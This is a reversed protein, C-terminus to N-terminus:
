IQAFLNSIQDRSWLCVYRPFETGKKYDPIRRVPRPLSFPPRELDLFRFGGLSVNLNSHLLYAKHSTILAYPIKSNSFNKLASLVDETPLHFLCDRCHWVDAVPFEDRIIDFVCLNVNPYRSRVDDVLLPSIDGGSYIINTESIVHRMWNLDGCPADFVRELSQAALLKSLRARYNLTFKHESGSGSRSEGSGWYNHKYVNDFQLEDENFRAAQEAM